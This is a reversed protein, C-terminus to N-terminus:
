NGAYFGKELAAKHDVGEIIIAALSASIFCMAAAIRAIMQFMGVFAVKIATEVQMQATESLDQPIPTNGLDRANAQLSMRATESMTVHTTQASLLSSFVVLAIAGFVATALVQASRTVANNIGSAVGSHESPVAGMVTATLPAVTIGMGLGIILIPPLFTTWYDDPGKTVGVFSLTLFGLGVIAPGVTLMRRPGLRPLLRGAYPSLVALLITFPLLTLGAISPDYGQIQILNLPLFLLAGTLAGYLFATMANSGSFDRSRFLRLDMMPHSSRAEVIIFVVLAIVGGVLGIIVSSDNLGEDVGLDGMTVLGYTIGALALAILTAGLIDLKRAEIDRSEPSKSLAYLALLALPLNIFFVFRWLGASALAGGLIPGGLTTITSASSWIGIAQGQEQPAFSASIIALSGPVMLAGGVGQAGRTIILIDVTPALGCVLSSIAFILIGIGFIRKRGYHDGLSGGLLILSALLLLYANVVWLLEAGTAGLETQINPLVLNLATGDIFAMSSALVTTVLIWRGTPESIHYNLAM